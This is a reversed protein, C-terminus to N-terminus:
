NWDFRAREREPILSTALDLLAPSYVKRWDSNSGARYNWKGVEPAQRRIWSPEVDIQQFKLIRQQLAESDAVLEPYTTVMIELSSSKQEIVDMWRTIWNVTSPLFNETQWALQDTISWDFYKEPMRKEVSQLISLYHGKRYITNVHHAWSVLAARPDRLHLVMRPVAIELSAVIHPEAPLHEQAICNGEVFRNIAAQDIGARTFGSGQIRVHDVQLTRALSRLIYKSGSKPLTNILIPPFRRRRAPFTNRHFFALVATTKGEIARYYKRKLRFAVM